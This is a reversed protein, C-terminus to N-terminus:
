TPSYNIQLSRNAALITLFPQSIIIFILVDCGIQGNPRRRIIIMSFYDICKLENFYHKGRIIILSHILCVNYIVFLYLNKIYVYVYM